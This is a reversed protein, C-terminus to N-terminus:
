ARAKSQLSKELVGISLGLISMMSSCEHSRFCLRSNRSSYNKRHQEKELHQYETLPLLKAGQPSKAIEASM